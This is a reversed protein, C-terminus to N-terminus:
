LYYITQLANPSGMRPNWALKIGQSRMVGPTTNNSNESPFPEPNPYVVQEDYDYSQNDISAFAERWAEVTDAENPTNNSNFNPFTGKFIKIDNPHRKFVKGSCIATIEIIRGGAAVDTVIYGPLFDPDFKSTKKYNRIMVDTGVQFKSAKTHRLGNFKDKRTEKSKKDKERATEVEEPDLSKRPLNTRVGDRFIMASPAIGTSPHPTDRYNTLFAQLSENESCEEANGIRMAKGLPKMLTEVNNAAPHGPAIKIQETCRNDTFEKM